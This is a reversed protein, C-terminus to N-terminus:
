VQWKLCVSYAQGRKAQQVTGDLAGMLILKFVEYSYDIMDVAYPLNM